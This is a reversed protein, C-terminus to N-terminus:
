PTRVKQVANVTTIAVDVAQQVAPLVTAPNMVTTGKTANLVVIADEVTTMVHQKKEPGTANRIAEAETIGHVIVPILPPPLNPILSLLPPLVGTAVAYWDFVKPM